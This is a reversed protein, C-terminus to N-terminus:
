ECIPRAQTSETLISKLVDARSIIGVLKGDRLIPLRKIRKELMLTAIEEIPADETAYILNTSMIEGATTAMMKWREEKFKKRDAWYSTTPLMTELKYVLDSESVIGLVKGTKDIVPLGTIRNKLLLDITERVPAEKKVTIVEKTMLDKAQM